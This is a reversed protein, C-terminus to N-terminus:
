KGLGIKKLMATYRPDSRLNNWMPHVMIFGLMRNKENYGKELWEFAKEKDGLGAYVQAIQVSLTYGKKSFEFLQDLAKFAEDKRGAKACVYGLNGAGFPNDAGVIQRVKLMENIAEDFKGQQAYTNGLFV